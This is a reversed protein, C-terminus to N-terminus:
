VLNGIMMNKVEKLVDAYKVVIIQGIVENVEELTLFEISDANLYECMNDCKNTILEEKTPLDIGLNCPNIIKPAAIRVHITKPKKERLKEILAKFTNGRVISDDM